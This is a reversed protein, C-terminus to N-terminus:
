RVEEVQIKTTRPLGIVQGAPDVLFLDIGMPFSSTARNRAELTSGTLGQVSVTLSEKIGPGKLTMLTAGPAPVASLAEVLLVATGGTEPQTLTGPNLRELLTPIAPDSARAFLWEAAGVMVTPASTNRQLYATLDAEGDGVVAFSTMPDLFTLGIQAVAAPWTAVLQLPILPMQRIEGPRAMADLLTRFTRQSDFVPDFAPDSGLGLLAVPQTAVRKSSAGKTNHM